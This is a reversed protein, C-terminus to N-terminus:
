PLFQWINENTNQDLHHCWFPCKSILQGKFNVLKEDTLNVIDVPHFFFQRIGWFLSKSYQAKCWRKQRQSIPIAIKWINFGRNKHYFTIVKSNYCKRNKNSNLSFAFNLYSLSNQIFGKWKEIGIHDELSRKKEIM